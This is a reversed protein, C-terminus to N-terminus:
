TRKRLDEVARVSLPHISFGRETNLKITREICLALARDIDYDALARIEETFPYMRNPEINDALKIIKELLGMGARGTTHWYIAEYVEPDNVGFVHRAEAAGLMGHVLFPNARQLEDLAIGYRECLTLAEDDGYEKACDHLLAALYTKKMDAGYRAALRLAAEVVGRTHALRKPSLRGKLTDHMQRVRRQLDEDRYVGLESVFREVGPPLLYKLSMGQRTRARLMTGSIDLGPIDLIHVHCSYDKRLRESHKLLSEKDYGPRTCVSWGCLPLLDGADKWTLIQMMEDAGIIFFVDDEPYVARLARVTDVTYSPGEREMEVRSVGFRPNDAAALTAMIYRYEDFTVGEKHPPRSAPVFV